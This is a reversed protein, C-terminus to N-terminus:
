FEETDTPLQAETIRDPCCAIDCFKCEHASPTRKPEPSLAIEKIRAFVRARDAPAPEVPVRELEAGGRGGYIIAGVLPLGDLKQRFAIPLLMMYSVVQWYDSSRRRGTKVDEVAAQGFLHGPKYIGDILATAHDGASPTAGVALIDACGGVKAHTGKVHFNNQGELSVDWGRESLQAARTRVAAGHDAKWRALQADKGPEEVKDYTHHAKFWPKWACQDDGALDAALWTVWIYPFPRPTM